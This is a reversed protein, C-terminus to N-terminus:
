KSAASRGRALEPPLGLDEVARRGQRTELLRPCLEFARDAAARAIAAEGLRAAALGILLFAAAVALGAPLLRSARRAADQKRIRSLDEVAFAALASVGRGANLVGRAGYTYGKDERLNLNIRSNFTGGLNFNMLSAKYFDGLSVFEGQDFYWDWRVDYNTLYAPILNPNGKIFRDLLPDKYIAPSLEKFDPRNTTEGYGARVQHDGFVLTASLSPFLDRTKLESEIPNRDPSFQDFTTVSQSSRENRFGGGLRLWDDLGWNVAFYSSDITQDATYADTAIAVALGLWLYLGLFLYPSFFAAPPQRSEGARSGTAVAEGWRYGIERYFALDSNYFPLYSIAPFDGPESPNWASQYGLLLFVAAQERTLNGM